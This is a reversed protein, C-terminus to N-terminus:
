ANAQTESSLELKGFRDAGGADNVNLRLAAVAFDEAGFTLDDDTIRITVSPITWVFNVGLDTLHRIVARGEFTSQTFPELKVGAKQSYTYDFEMLQLSKLADTAGNVNFFRIKGLLPDLSYDTNLAFAHSPAYDALIEGTVNAAVGGVFFQLNGSAAGTGVEVEVENGAAAAGTAIPTYAVGGVTVSTVDGVVLPKFALAFDGSASGSTGNGTGVLEQSIAKCTLSTGTISTEDIDANNLNIFSSGANAGSPVQVEEDVVSAAPDAVIPSVLGSAFIYQALDQRFNFTELALSVELRSVIERDVTLTGADGRELQLTEVGKQLAESALIGLPVATGFGGGSLKPEFEVISFGLLLNDRTFQDSPRPQIPM